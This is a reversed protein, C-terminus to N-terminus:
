DGFNRQVRLWVSNVRRGDIQSLRLELQTELRGINWDLRSEWLRTERDPLSM